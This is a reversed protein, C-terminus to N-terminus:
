NARSVTEDLAPTHIVDGVIIGLRRVTGADLELMAKGLSRSTVPDGSRAPREAFIQFIVGSEDIFLVDLSRYATVMSQSIMKPAPYVYLMGRNAPMSTRFSTGWAWEKTNRALEVVFNLSQTGSLRTITLLSQSFTPATEWIDAFARARGEIATRQNEVEADVTSKDSLRYQYSSCRSNWDDVYANFAPTGTGSNLLPRAAELMANQLACYRLNAQTFQLDKGAPPRVVTPATSTDPLSSPASGYSPVAPAYQAPPSYRPPPSYTQSNKQNGLVALLLILAATASVWRAMLQSRRKGAAAERVKKLAAVEESDTEITLLRDLLSIAAKWRDGKLAPELEQQIVHKESARKDAKLIEVLEASPRDTSFYDIMGNIIAAAAKPSRSENSLSIAVNRVLRWPADAFETGKARGVAEKFASYLVKTIGTSASGFGNRLLEQEIARHNEQASGCAKILPDLLKVAQQQNVLDNLQKTDEEMQGLARPLESFVDACARTIRRAVGYQEKDNALSVCLARVHLYLERASADERHHYSEFLQLPEGIENWEHLRTSISRALTGNQPKERLSDCANIVAERRRSLEPAAALGYAQIFTDLKSVRSPDNAGIVRRVFDTLIKSFTSQSSLKDVVAKVQHQELRALADTVLARDVKGMKALDRAESVADFVGGMAITTHADLLQLLGDVNLPSKSGLHALVNSRPLAHLSCVMEDFNPRKSETKLAAIILRSKQEDVDLLGGVEADIRMRPTLLTQRARLLIEPPAVNDEIADEYANKIDQATAAPSVDLLVFPNLLLNFGSEEYVEASASNLARSAQSGAANDRYARYVDAHDPDLRTATDLDNIATAIEGMKQRVLGRFAYARADNPNLLIARDLDSLALAYKGKRGYLLGRNRFAEANQPNVKVIRSLVAIISDFEGEGIM